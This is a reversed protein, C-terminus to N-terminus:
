IGWPLEKRWVPEEWCSVRVTLGVLFPAPQGTYWECAGCQVICWDLENRSVRRRGLENGAREGAADKPGAPSEVDRPHDGNYYPPPHCTDVDKGTLREPVPLGQRAPRTRVVGDDRGGLNLSVRARTIAFLPMGPVAIAGAYLPM